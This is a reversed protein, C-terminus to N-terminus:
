KVVFRGFMFSEHAQCYFKYKGKKLTLVFSKTGTFGVSTFTKEFGKPGDLNFSHISARDNVVLKYKGAKLTKVKKGGMTLTITYGPGTTGVLKPPAAQGVSAALAAVLAAVVAALLIRAM